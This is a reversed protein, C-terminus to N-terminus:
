PQLREGAKAEAWHLDMQELTARRPELGQEALRKEVHSFRRLFKDNARNLATEPCLGVYVAVCALVFLVDGLEDEIRDSLGSKVAVRFEALEEDLKQMVAELDPWTFGVEAARQAIKRARLLAPVARPLDGLSVPGGSESRKAGRWSALAEEPSSARASGFVHPHRRVLKDALEGAVEGIDFAGRDRALQSHLVVQLLLDGLEERLLTDDDREIADVVEYAEELLNPRLSRHTQARDWPCGDESRLRAVVKVVEALAAAERSFDSGAPSPTM